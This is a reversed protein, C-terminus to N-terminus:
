IYIEKCLEYATKASRLLIIGEFEAKKLLNEDPTINEPFIVAAAEALHAVAAVNINNQVTIWVDNERIKGMCHSLLDCVYVGSVTKDESIGGTIIELDLKEIIENLKL